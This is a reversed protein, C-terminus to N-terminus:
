FLMKLNGYNLTGNSMLEYLFEGFLPSFRYRGHTSDIVIIFRSDFINDFRIKHIELHHLNNYIDEKRGSFYFDAIHGINVM